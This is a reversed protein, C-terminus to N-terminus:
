VDDEHFSKRLELESLFFADFYTVLAMVFAIYFALPDYSGYRSFGWLTIAVTVIIVGRRGSVVAIPARCAHCEFIKGPGKTLAQILLWQKRCKPCRGRARQADSPPGVVIKFVM